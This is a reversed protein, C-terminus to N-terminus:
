RAKPKIIESRDIFDSVSDSLPALAGSSEHVQARSQGMQSHKGSLQTRIAHLKRLGDQHINEQADLLLLLQDDKNQAALRVAAVEESLVLQQDLSRKMASELADLRGEQAQMSTIQKEQAEVKKKTDELSSLRSQMQQRNHMLSNNVHTRLAELDSETACGPLILLGTVLLTRSVMSPRGGNM